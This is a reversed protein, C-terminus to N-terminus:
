KELSNSSVVSTLDFLLLPRKAIVRHMRAHLQDLAVIGGLEYILRLVEEWLKLQEGATLVEEEDSDGNSNNGGADVPIKLIAM